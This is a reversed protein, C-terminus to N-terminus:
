ERWGIPEYGCGQLFAHFVDNLHRWRQLFTGVPKAFEICDILRKQEQETLRAYTWAKKVMEIFEQTANEKIKM